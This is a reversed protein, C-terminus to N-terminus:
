VVEIQKPHKNARHLLYVLALVHLLIPPANLWHGVGTVPTAFNGIGFLYSSSAEANSFSLLSSAVILGIEQIGFKKLFGGQHMLHLYLSQFILASVITFLLPWGFLYVFIGFSPERYSTLRDPPEQLARLNLIRAKWEIQKKDLKNSSENSNVVYKDNTLYIIPNIVDGPNLLAPEAEFKNESVRKWNLGIYSSNEVSNTVALIKWPNPVSVSLNEYYDSPLIPAKGVNEIYARGILLNDVAQEGMKLRLQAENRLLSLDRLPNFPEYRRLEVRKEPAAGRSSLDYAVYTPVAATLLGVALTIIKWIIDSLKTM